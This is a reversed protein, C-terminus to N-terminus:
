TPKSPMALAAEPGDEEDPLFPHHPILSLHCSDLSLTNQSVRVQSQHCCAWGRQRSPRWRFRM